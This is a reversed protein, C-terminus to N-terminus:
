FILREEKAEVLKLKATLVIRVGAPLWDFLIQGGLQGRATLRALHSGFGSRQPSGAITPGGSESWTLALEEGCRAWAIDVRGVRTSLAGYKAANTALEHVTLALATAANPVLLLPPGALHVQKNDPALHPTLITTILEALDVNEDSPVAALAPQILEHARALAMVRGRLGEAMDRTNTASRASISIMGSLVAFLNKVRHNLERNLLQRQNLAEELGARAEERATIDVGSAVLQVIEGADNRLPAIQCDIMLRTDDRWRIQLDLRVTEGAGARTVSDRVRARVAPDHAFWYTDWALRGIVADRPLGAGDLPARNAELLTGDLTCIGVFVFMNDLVNRLRAESAAVMQTSRKRATIDVSTGVLGIVTGGEDRFATKHSLFTRPGHADFGAAEEIEEAGGTEMVRRDTAMIIDAQVPDALYEADTRDQVESLPKGIVDLTAKNAIRIRGARDKVYILAPVSEIVARLLANAERAAAESARLRDEARKLDEIDVLVGPFRTPNGAADHECRGTATVWRYLGDHQRIRYETRYNGGRVVTDAILKEVRPLDDPHIVTIIAGLPVGEACAAPDLGFTRAFREDSTFCDAPIDWVFTGVIAGSDLALEIREAASQPGTLVRDPRQRCM